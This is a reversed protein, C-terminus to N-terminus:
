NARYAYLWVKKRDATICFEYEEGDYQSLFHGRGDAKIASEVFSALGCTGSIMAAFAPNADECLKDQIPAFCREDLGTEGALFSPRFSWLSDVIIENVCTDATDNDFVVYEGPGLNDECWQTAKKEAIAQQRETLKSYTWNFELKM